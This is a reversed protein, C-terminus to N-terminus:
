QGGYKVVMSNRKVGDDFVLSIVYNGNSLNSMDLRLITNNGTTVLEERKVLKGNLDFVSIYLKTNVNTTTINLNAINKVPNPYVKFENSPYVALRPSSVTITITDKATAGNNDTASFEIDYVGQFLNQITTGTLNPTGILYGSPGKIVKWTYSIINGDPDTATGKLLANNTPLLIDIDNGANVVPLQNNNIVAANVTIQITDKGTAGVNDTVTLEFQYIGQVLNDVATGPSNPSAIAGASPGSIKVWVFGALSGDADMGSGVLTARNTPLTIVKDTGAFAIPPQNAGVNVTIQVTDKGTVGNNDTVTLEFQYIGQVLNDVATGPSNPSAITVTSPGSIKTWIYNTITGDLDIGAGALITSNAPLTITQDAGANALPVQNVASNVIVQVTDTAVAGSDDTVTL